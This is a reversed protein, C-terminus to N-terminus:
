IAHLLELSDYEDKIIEYDAMTKLKDQTAAECQLWVPSFLKELNRELTELRQVYGDVQKHFIRQNLPTPVLVDPVPAQYVAGIVPPFAVGYM